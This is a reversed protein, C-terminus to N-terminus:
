PAIGGAALAELVIRQWREKGDGSFRVLSGYRRKGNQDRLQIGDRDVEPMTPVGASFTGDGKRFIPIAKVIWGSFDVDAHGALSGGVGHPWPTWSALAVRTRGPREDRLTVTKDPNALNGDHSKADSREM